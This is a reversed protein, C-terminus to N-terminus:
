SISPRSRAASGEHPKKTSRRSYSSEPNWVHFISRAQDRGEGQNLWAYGAHRLESFRDASSCAVAQVRSSAGRWPIRQILIALDGAMGIMLSLHGGASGGSIGIAIRDIKFRRMPASIDRVALNMDGITRSRISRHSGHCVAFCTYGRNLLERLFDVHDSTVRFVVAV